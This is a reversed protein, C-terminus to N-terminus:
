EREQPSAVSIIAEAYERDLEQVEQTLQDFPALSKHDPKTRNRWIAWADHVDKLTTEERKVFFLLTYMDLLDAEVNIKAGLMSRIQEVYNKEEKMIM